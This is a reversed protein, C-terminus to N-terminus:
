IRYKHFTCVEAPYLQGNVTHESGKNDSSGWHFHFQKLRYTGTVPGGTLALSALVFCLFM